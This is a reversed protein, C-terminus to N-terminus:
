GGLDVATAAFEDPVPTKLRAVPYFTLTLGRGLADRRYPDAVNSVVLIGAPENDPHHTLNVSWGPTVRRGTLVPVGSQTFLDLYWSGLRKRYTLRVRFRVGGLSVSQIQSPLWWSFSLRQGRLAAAEDQTYLPSDDPEPPPSPNNITPM